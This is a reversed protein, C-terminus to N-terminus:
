ILRWALPDRKVAERAGEKSKNLMVITMEFTSGAEWAMIHIRNGVTKCACVVMGQRMKMRRATDVNTM